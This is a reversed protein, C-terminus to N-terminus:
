ERATYRLIRRGSLSEVSTGCANIDATVSDLCLGPGSDSHAMLSCFLDFCSLNEKNEQLTDICGVDM